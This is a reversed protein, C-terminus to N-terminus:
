SYQSPETVFKLQGSFENHEHGSLPSIQNEFM